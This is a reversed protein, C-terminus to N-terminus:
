HPASVIRLVRQIARQMIKRAAQTVDGKPLVCSLRKGSPFISAM